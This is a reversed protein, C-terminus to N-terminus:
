FKFDGEDEGGESYESYKDDGAGEDEYYLSGYIRRYKLYLGGALGLIIAAAFVIVIIVWVGLGASGHVPPTQISFTTFHHVTFTITNASTNVVGTIPEWGGSSENYFAAILSSENVGSPITAPDYTVTIEIGPDFTAGNPSFNFAAIIRRDGSAPHYQLASSMNIEDLPEGESNNATTGAPIHLSIKADASPINVAQQIVGSSSTNCSANTGGINFSITPPPAPAAVTTFDWIDSSNNTGCSNKAVVKWYYKTSYALQSPQYSSSNTSASFSPTASTNFYVDYSSANTCDAWDLMINIPISTSGNTLSSVTQPKSPTACGTTFSWVSGNTSIGCGNAVVKWYYTTNSTLTSLPWSSVTTNGVLTSPSSNTGFYVQYYSANASTNWALDANISVVTSANAPSPSVPTGPAVCETTFSWVSSLGATNGCINVAVVKWYYTTNSTLTSLPWSSATTNGVLTSPSSNTGFYVRYSTAASANVWALDANVSVVTSADAPSPVTPIGPTSCPTATPTPTPTPTATATPTPTPTPTATATPTPTPTPTPPICTQPSSASTLYLSYNVVGRAADDYWDYIHAQITAEVTTGWWNHTADVYPSGQSNDNYVDFPTNSYINNCNITPQGYNVHIGGGGSTASNNSINCSSITASSNAYIGGGSNASNNSINCNSITATVGIVYIGGGSVASNNSINCGSISASGSASIGGGNGSSASNNSINCSSISASDSTYIGGGSVASNNSINCSNINASGYIGGGRWASNNSINCNSITITTSGPNYIGGGSGPPTASNNSINCSSITTSGSTYIGGGNGTGVSNNSINCSSIATSGSNHIGGGSNNSINCSSIATSGSAYIGSGSNNSINCSSIATSGSAYIGSGSNNSIDCSSIKPSGSAVYIGGSVSSTIVCYDIFPSSSVIKLMPTSSGGGYEITCYQMISGSSYSGNGYYTADVSTDTFLINVWDGAAPSSQNSTFVIPDTANGRAIIRGDVQMGRSSNFKVTVGPEITLTVGSLVRVSGTVIYTSNATTWITNSAIDGSVSIPGAALTVSAPVTIVSIVSVAMVLLLVALSVIIAKKM